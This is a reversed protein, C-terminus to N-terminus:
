YNYNNCLDYSNSDLIFQLEIVFFVAHLLLLKHLCIFDNNTTLSVATIMLRYLTYVYPCMKRSHTYEIIKNQGQKQIYQCTGYVKWTMTQHM